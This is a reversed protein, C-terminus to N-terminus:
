GIPWSKIILIEKETTIAKDYLTNFKKRIIFIDLAKNVSKM